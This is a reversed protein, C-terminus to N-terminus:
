SDAAVVVSVVVVVVIAAVINENLYGVKGFNSWALDTGL